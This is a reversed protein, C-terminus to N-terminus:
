LRMVFPGEKSPDGELVAFKAGPRLSGPGDRWKIEAPPYLAMDQSFTPAAFMM